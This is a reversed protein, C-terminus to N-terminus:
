RRKPCPVLTVVTVKQWSAESEGGGFWLEAKGKWGGAPCKDPVHGVAILKRGKMMAAGVTVKIEEAMAYPAGTVTEILPVNGIFRWGFPGSIPKFDGTGYREISAPSKGELWFVLADTGPAFYAQVRVKERVETNGFYVKGDAEGPASAQSGNPCPPELHQEFKSVPCTPFGASSFKAGKPFYADLRRLPPPGVNLATGELFGESAAPYESGKIVITTELAAPAGLIDGTGPWSPGGDKSLNKPIPVITAKLTVRPVAAASAPVVFTAAASLVAVLTNRM